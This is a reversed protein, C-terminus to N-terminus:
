ADADPGESGRREAKGKSPYASVTQGDAAAPEWRLIAVGREPLELPIEVTGHAGSVPRRSNSVLDVISEAQQLFEDPLEVTTTLSPGLNNVFLLRAPGSTGSRWQVHDGDECGLRVKPWASGLELVYRLFREFDRDRQKAYPMGAYSGLSFVQGRGVRRRVVIAEERRSMALVKAEDSAYAEVFGEVPLRLHAEGDHVVFEGVRPSRRGLSRLGLASAFPRDEPYRFFGREDFADLEAEAFLTGGARVWALLPAAASSRIIKPWPLFLVKLRDLTQVHKSDVVEYPVQLRELGLLYGQLNRAAASNSGGADAWALHYNAEELLVGVEAPDPQYGRLVPEHRELIRRTQRMAEFRSEAYGDNGAIGFGGSEWGFVEDRWCWFLVAKAGRSFASWVWSQQFDGPVPESVDKGDGAWTTGGQLESVWYLKGQTASRVSELRTGLEGSNMRQWHPFHSSGFGDLVDAHDWDNGRSLAQEYFPVNGIPYSGDHYTTPQSAHALIPHSPDGGRIAAYRFAMHQAARWTLFSEFEVMDTYPRGPLKGPMVDEWSAYRRRWAHKLGDLDGYREKLWERFAQLTHHCYCVHGDGQVAWRLENWCDWAVLASASRYREAIRTLFARIQRAVEPNDTCGGPTLGVNCERRLSSIVTHGMHDVMASDPVERHIWFPQVEAITSIVVRLGQREALEVLEDYDEWRYRGPEPEIWGWVAWLQVANLGVEHMRHLDDSWFRREPFPPRYYQTGLLIEHMM